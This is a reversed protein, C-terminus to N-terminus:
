KLFYNKGNIEVVKKGYVVFDKPTEVVLSIEMDSYSSENESSTDINFYIERVQNLKKKLDSGTIPTNRGESLNFWANELTIQTLFYDDKKISLNQFTDRWDAMLTTGDKLSIELIDISFVKEMEKKTKIDLRIDM